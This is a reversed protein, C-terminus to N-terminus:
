VNTNYLEDQVNYMIMEIGAKDNKYKIYRGDELLVFDEVWEFKLMLDLEAPRGPRKEYESVM